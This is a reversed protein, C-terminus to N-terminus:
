RWLWHRYLQNFEDKLMGYYIMSHYRGRSYIENRLAGERIFGFNEHFAQSATNYEYVMPGCKQYGLENFYYDLIIILAEKGYGKRRHEPELRIGYRFIGIRTRTFWVDVSGVYSGALTEIIFFKKDDKSLQEIYDLLEKRSGEESLPFELSDELWQGESDIKNRRGVFRQVDAEEIARIRIKDSEWYYKAVSL